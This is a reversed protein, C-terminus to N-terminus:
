SHRRRKKSPNWQSGVLYRAIVGIHKAYGGLDKPADSRRGARSNKSQAM